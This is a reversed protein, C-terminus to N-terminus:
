RVWSDTEDWVIRGGTAGDEDTKSTSMLITFTGQGTIDQSDMFSLVPCLSLCKRLFLAMLSPPLM